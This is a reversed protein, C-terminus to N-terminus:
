NWSFFSALDARLAQAVRAESQSADIVLYREPSQRARDLYLDRARAFFELSEEEFRDATRVRAARQLGLAPPIDLLITLDPHFLGLAWSELEAIRATELGRGGGQYAYSADVFRDSIVWRGDQLAPGIVKHVHEVRAAFMLLLEADAHMGRHRTDLLVFRLAEGLATGGPERTFLVDIGREELFAKLTAIQTSKGAGEVGEITLFCGPTQTSSSV